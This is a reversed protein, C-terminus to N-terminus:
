SLEIATRDRVSSWALWHQCWFALARWRGFRTYHRAVFKANAHNAGFTRVAFSRTASDLALADYSGLLMALYRATVPGIGPLAELAALRDTAPLDPEGVASLDIAGSAVGEALTLISRARYGAGAEATLYHAGATLVEDPTPFAHRPATSNPAVTLKTISEIMKRTRRWTVNTTCIGKVIDEWLEPSRLLRGAGLQAIPRLKQSTRCRAYFDALDEDLRLMHRVRSRIELADAKSPRPSVRLDVQPWGDSRFSGARVKLVYTKGSPLRDIRELTDTTPHWSFPALAHWGHSLATAWLSFPPRAALQQLTGAGGAM